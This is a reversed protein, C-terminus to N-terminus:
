PEYYQNFGSGQNLNGSAPIQGSGQHPNRPPHSYRSIKSLIRTQRKKRGNYVQNVIHQGKNITTISQVLSPINHDQHDLQQVQKKAINFTGGPGFAKQFTGGPGFAQHFTSGPGFSDQVPTSSSPRGAINQVFGTGFTQTYSGDPNTQIITTSSVGGANNPGFSQNIVSVSNCQCQCRRLGEVQKGNSDVNGDVYIQLFEPTQGNNAITSQVNDQICVWTGTNGANRHQEPNSSATGTQNFGSGFKQSDDGGGAVQVGSSTGNSDVNEYIAGAEFHQIFGSTQTCQCKGGGVVQVGSSADTSDVNELIAGAEFHQIFGPSDSNIPIQPQVSIEPNNQHGSDLIETSVCGNPGCSGQSNGELPTGSTGNQNFGSEVTQSVVTTTLLALLPIKLEM